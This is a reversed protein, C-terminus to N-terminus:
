AKRGLILLKHCFPIAVSSRSIVHTLPSPRRRLEPALYYGLRRTVEFRTEIARRLSRASLLQVHTQDEGNWVTGDRFYQAVGRLSRLSYRNPTSLAVFGGPKTVRWLEDVFPEVKWRQLHEIIEFAITLSSCADRFPLQRVDGRVAPTANDHAARCERLSLDHAIATGGTRAVVLRTLSADGAAVDLVIDAPALRIGAVLQEISARRGAMWRDYSNAASAAIM